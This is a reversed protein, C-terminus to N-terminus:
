DHKNELAARALEQALGCIRINEYYWDRWEAEGEPTERRKGSNVFGKEERDLWECFTKCAERLRNIEGQMEVQIALNEKQDAKWGEIETRLAHVDDVCRNYMSTVDFVEAKLREIEAEQSRLMDHAAVAYIIPRAKLREALELANM